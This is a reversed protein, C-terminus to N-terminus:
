ERFLYKRILVSIGFVVGIVLSVCGGVNADLAMALFYGAVSSVIAFLSGLLLMGPLRESFLAATAPPGVLFAIVLVAGVSEFAIVTSLSVMAMLLYHWAIVQIGIAAAFGPDFTSLYLGRYGAWLALLLLLLLGTSILLQRPIGAILDFPVFAIEGFLVCDQDIDAMGAFQSVMIVGVAFLFTYVLGIAADHQVKVKKQLFEILITVLLGSSAAGALLGPGAKTGSILYAAVLGPLVAHSIADGYMAMRRLVLFTGPIVCCLSVACTTLLIWWDNVQFSM